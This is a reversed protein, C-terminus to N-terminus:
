LSMGLLHTLPAAMLRFYSADKAFWKKETADWSCNDVRHSTKIFRTAGFKEAVGQLYQQIERGPAYLNSWHPNPSFTYQYSHAEM